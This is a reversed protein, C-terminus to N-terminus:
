DSSCRVHEMAKAIMEDLTLETTDIVVADPAAALPSVKRSSDVRDRQVIDKRAGSSDQRVGWEGAQAARRAARAEDSADLYFKLPAAPLVVTGIDRGALIVHGNHAFERQRRVMVERVGAVASYASVNGEVEPARLEGTVDAGDIEIRTDFTEADTVLDMHLARAFATCADADSAPTRERLAAYTVARYMLGTDLFRYGLARALALGLTTKGSAAPGDIAITTPLDRVM